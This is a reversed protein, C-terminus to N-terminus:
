EFFNRRPFLNVYEPSHDHTERFSRAEQKSKNHLLILFREYTEFSVPEMGSVIEDFSAKDSTQIVKFPDRHSTESLDVQKGSRSNERKICVPGKRYYSPYIM